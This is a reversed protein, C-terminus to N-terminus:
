VYNQPKETLDTYFLRQHLFYVLKDQRRKYAWENKCCEHNNKDKKKLCHEPIKILKKSFADSKSHKQLHEKIESKVDSRM